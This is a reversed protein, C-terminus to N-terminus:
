GKNQNYGSIASYLENMGNLQNPLEQLIQNALNLEATLKTKQTAISADQKSIDANLTAEINSNSKEALSLIGKTSSTGMNNLIATVTQGWSNANQFFGLVGGFDENLAADLTSQDFTLTGDDKTSVTIGLNALTSLDSSNNYNLSTNTSGATAVLNSQVDLAGASGATQSKLTLTSQGNNSVIAATVGPGAALINSNVTLSSSDSSSLSLTQLGNADTTVSATVGFSTAGSITAALAALTPNASGAYITNAAAGAAPEDGIVVNETTGDGRTLTMSGSLANGTAVKDLSGGKNDTSSTFGLATGSNAANIADVVGQLTNVGAGTYFTNATNTGAGIVITDTVGGGVALSMSGSLTSGTTIPDIYGNPNQANAVTMLQQQLLSLTPSGFLPEPNGSSDNGQQTNIAAVLANYDTVFQNIATEVGNNDNGIIVQVPERTTGDSGVASPALLQFTVGAILNTV